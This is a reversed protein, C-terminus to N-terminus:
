SNIASEVYPAACVSKILETKLCHERWTKEAVQFLHDYDNYVRNSWNHSRFYHWLNEIPNLEPSYPPLQLLTVNKPLQLEGSRHFGAGDWIMVAHEDPALSRSFQDLFQNIISTNLVPSLIAEAQGTQPSVAGVVWLYSYETQRVATPRSGQRAWMRNLTGQQGFRCEDQFFVTLRCEPHQEAIKAM